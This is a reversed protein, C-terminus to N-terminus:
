DERKLGLREWMWSVDYFPRGERKNHEESNEFSKLLEIVKIRGEETKVAQLPTKGDLAPVKKKLWNTSNKHMFETYVKQQIEMPIENASEKHPKKECEKLAKMPDQFTDIKHILSDSLAELILKKGKELRKKSNCELILRAEKFEIRGLITASGEKNKKAFWLYDEGTQEFDTINMLGNIVAEKDRIEFVTKSLIMPEGTTTHLSPLMPNRILDYWYFNFIDSEMKLFDDMAAEPYDLRYDEFESHIDALIREKQKLPYPYVSGSMIYKGDIYILRTAYIDWKSLSRTAAKEKVDYEEGLILDKLLLGEEPFVEQVEYLSIVSNKMITLVKHEDPSMRVKSEMYLDILTKGDEEDVVFDHVVWELFNQSAIALATGDLHEEPNFDDWFFFRADWFSHRYNKEFLQLLEQVLRNRISDERGTEQYTRSLCCKKYKKGSGCPCPNNRGTQM